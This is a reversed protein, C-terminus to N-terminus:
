LSGSNSGRSRRAQALAVRALGSALLLLSSPEPIESDGSELDSQIFYSAGATTRVGAVEYQICGPSSTVTCTTADETAQLVLAVNPITPLFPDSFLQAFGVGNSNFFKVIDSTTGDLELIKLYGEIVTVPVTSGFGNANAAANLDIAGPTETNTEKVSVPGVTSSPAGPCSTVPNGNQPCNVIGGFAAALPLVAALFARIAASM